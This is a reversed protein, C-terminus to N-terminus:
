LCFCADQDVYHSGKCFAFVFSVVSEEGCRLSLAQGVWAQIGGGGTSTNAVRSGELDEDGAKELCTVPPQTNWAKDVAEPCGMDGAEGGEAGAKLCVYGCM